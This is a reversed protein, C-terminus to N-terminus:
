RCYGEDVSSTIVPGDATLHVQFRQKLSYTNGPGPGAVQFNHVFSEGSKVVVDQLAGGIHYTDGSIAGVGTGGGLGNIHFLTNNGAQKSILQVSGTIETVLEGSVGYCSNYIGNPFFAAAPVVTRTTGNGGAMATQVILLSLVILLLASTTYLKRKNTSM